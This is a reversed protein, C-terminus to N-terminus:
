PTIYYNFLLIRAVYLLKVAHAEATKASRTLYLISDTGIFFDM